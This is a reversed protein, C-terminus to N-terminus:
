ISALLIHYPICSPVCRHQYIQVNPLQKLTSLSPCPTNYPLGQEKIENTFRYIDIKALRCSPLALRYSPLAPVDGYSRYQTPVDGYSRYQTPTVYLGNLCVFLVQGQRDTKPFIKEALLPPSIDYSKLVLLVFTIQKTLFVKNLMYYIIQINKTLGLSIETLRLVLSASKCSHCSVHHHHISTHITLAWCHCLIPTSSTCQSLQDLSDIRRSDWHRYVRLFSITHFVAQYVDTSTSKYM